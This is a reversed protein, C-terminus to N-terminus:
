RPNSGYFGGSGAGSRDQKQPVGTSSTSSNDSSGSPDNRLYTIFEREGPHEPDGWAITVTVRFLNQFESSEVKQVYRFGPAEEGFDGQTEGGGGLTEPHLELETLRSQALLAAQHFRSATTSAGTAMSFAGMAGIIGIALLFTAVIMEILTFGASHRRDLRHKRSASVFRM